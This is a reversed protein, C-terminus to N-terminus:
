EYKMSVYAVWHKQTAIATTGMQLDKVKLLSHDISSEYGLFTGTLSNKNQLINLKNAFALGFPVSYRGCWVWKYEKYDTAQVTATTFSKVKKMTIKGSLITEIIEKDHQVAKLTGKDSTGYPALNRGWSETGYHVADNSIVIAVDKGFTM